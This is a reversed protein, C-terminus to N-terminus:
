FHPRPRVSLRSQGPSRHDIWVAIRDVVPVIWFIGPGRLGTFRGFRLVVAKEWQDAVKIALLIYTSILASSAATVWIWIDPAAYKVLNYLGLAALLIVTLYVIIAVGPIRTRTEKNSIRIAELETLSRRKGM